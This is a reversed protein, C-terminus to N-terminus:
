RIRNERIARQEVAINYAERIGMQGRIFEKWTADDLLSLTTMQSLEMAISKRTLGEDKLEKRIVEIDGGDKLFQAGSRIQSPLQFDRKCYPCTITKM